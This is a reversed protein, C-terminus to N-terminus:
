IRRRRNRRQAKLRSRTSRSRNFLHKAVLRAAQERSLRPLPMTARLLERVNAVSLSPLVKVGMQRALDPSRPHSQAWDWQTEAVFWSALATLATHHEWARYKRARFDDWGLVSKADQNARDLFYPLRKLRALDERSTEPSANSLAYSYRGPAHERVVLWEQAVAGERVTWVRRFAFGDELDGRETPRVRMRHFLTDARRAWQRAELPKGAPPPTLYVRTNEPVEAMYVIQAEDLDRRLRESRGYLEDCLVAEFPLGNAKARQIMRWGLQTKTQFGREPPIGLQERKEKRDKEFWAQPLYLEADVGVSIPGEHYALFVGVQSMEVKGLRGNHQGRCTPASGDGDKEDPSEDFVLVGGRGQTRAAIERQIQDTVAKASWPSDSMFQQLSQGDDTPGNVTRAINAFNRETMVRLSGQLYVWANSSQDRTRTKFGPRFRSWFGRLRAPLNEVAQEPLGWTTPDSVDPVLTRKAMLAVEQAFSGCFELLLDLPGM